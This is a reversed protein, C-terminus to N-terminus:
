LTLFTMRVAALHTDPGQGCDKIVQGSILGSWFSKTIQFCTGSSSFSAVTKEGIFTSATM